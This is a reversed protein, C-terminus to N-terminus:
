EGLFWFGTGLISENWGQENMRPPQVLDGAVHETVFRDYSVDANFARIVYDRYQYANAIIPDFEHGRTEGYRVLDLWHRGWREGFHPSALLRDVVRAFAESSDDALFAEVEEVTPPLGILDFTARRILTRKDAPAAPTLGAAELRALLYRDSDALPWAADAVAPPAVPSVPQFSWHRRREALNFAPPEIPTAIEGDEPAAAGGAVWATLLAIQEDSLKGAPPMQSFDSGYRIAQIMLSAEIDGPVVAPGSEGGERMAATRDLRLKSQQKDPGHCQYCNEALLPRIKSEYHELAAPDAAPEKALLDGPVLVAVALIAVALIRVARRM